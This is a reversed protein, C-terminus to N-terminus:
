AFTILIFLHNPVKNRDASGTPFHRSLDGLEGNRGTQDIAVANRLTVMLASFTESLHEVFQSM